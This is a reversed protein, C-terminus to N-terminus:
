LWRLFKVLWGNLGQCYVQADEYSMSENATMHYCGLGDLYTFKPDCQAGLAPAALGIILFLLPSKTSLM